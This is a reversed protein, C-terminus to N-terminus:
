LVRRIIHLKPSWYSSSLVEQEVVGKSTSSHIMWLQDNSKKSVIGVHFVKGSKKFFVLDGVISEHLSIRKGVQSQDSATRPLPIGAKGYVTSTLGSCDMGSSSTGAYKYKTGIYSEANRVVTNLTSSASTPKATACAVFLGGLCLLFILRGM